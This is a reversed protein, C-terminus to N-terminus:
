LQKEQPQRHIIGARERLALKKNCVAASASKGSKTKNQILNELM